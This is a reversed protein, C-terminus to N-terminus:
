AFQVLIERNFLVPDPKVASQPILARFFNWGMRRLEGSLGMALILCQEKKRSLNGEQLCSSYVSCNNQSM